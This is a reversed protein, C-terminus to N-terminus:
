QNKIKRWEKPNLKGEYPYEAKPPICKGPVVFDLAPMFCPLLM